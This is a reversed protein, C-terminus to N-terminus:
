PPGSLRYPSSMIGEDKLATRSNLISMLSCSYFRVEIFYFIAYILNSNPMLVVLILCVFTFVTTLLGTNITYTVLTNILNNTQKFSSKNKWLYYIMAITVTADGAIDIALAGTGFRIVAGVESILKWREATNFNATLFYHREEQFELLVWLKAVYVIALALQGLALIFIIIPIILKKNSLIYVRYAFFTQVSITIIDAVLTQSSLAWNVKSLFVYDGFNTVTYSYYFTALFAVHLTDVTWLFGVFIKLLSADKSSHHMYYHYVQLCTVGYITTSLIIGIFAAGLLNDLPILAPM